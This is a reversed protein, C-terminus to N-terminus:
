VSKGNQIARIVLRQPTVDISRVEDLMKRIAQLYQQSPPDEFTTDDILYVWCLVIQGTRTSVPLLKRTYGWEYGDLAELKAVTLKMVAGYTKAGLKAHVSAVAGKWRQSHGAFIRTHDRLCGSVACAAAGARQQLQVSSNSGYSFLNVISTSQDQDASM